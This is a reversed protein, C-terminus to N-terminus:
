TDSELTDALLASALNVVASALETDDFAIVGDGSHNDEYVVRHKNVLSALAKYEPLSENERKLAANEEELNTVEKTVNWNESTSIIVIMDDKSRESLKM